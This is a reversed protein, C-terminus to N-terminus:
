PPNSFLVLFLFPSLIVGQLVGFKVDFQDSVTSGTCILFFIQYFIMNGNLFKVKYVKTLYIIYYILM